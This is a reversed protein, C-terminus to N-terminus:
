PDHPPDYRWWRYEGVNLIGVTMSTDVVLQGPRRLTMEGDNESIRTDTQKARPPGGGWPCDGPVVLLSPGAMGALDDRWWPASMPGVFRGIIAPDRPGAEDLFWQVHRPDHGPPFRHAISAALFGRRTTNEQKLWSRASSRTSKGGSCSRNNRFPACSCRAAGHISRVRRRSSVAPTRVGDITGGTRM